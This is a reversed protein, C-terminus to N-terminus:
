LFTFGGAVSTAGLDGSPRGRPGVPDGGLDGPAGILDGALDRTAGLHTGRKQGLYTRGRNM